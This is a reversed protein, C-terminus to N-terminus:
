IHEM